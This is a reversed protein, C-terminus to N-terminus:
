MIATTSLQFVVNESPLIHGHEDGTHCTNIWKTDEKKAKQEDRQETQCAVCCRPLCRSMKVLWNHFDVEPNHKKLWTFGLIMSQKGLQTVALLICESHGNYM